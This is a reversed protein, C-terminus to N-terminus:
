NFMLTYESIIGHLRTSIKQHIPPAYRTRRWSLFVDLMSFTKQQEGHRTGQLYLGCKGGFLQYVAVLICPTVDWFVTFKMTVATLIQFRLVSVGTISVVSRWWYRINVWALLKHFRASIYIASKQQHRGKSIRRDQLHFRCTGVFRRTRVSSKLM